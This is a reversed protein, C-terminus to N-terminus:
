RGAPGPLSTEGLVLWCKRLFATCVIGAVILTVLLVVAIRAMLVAFKSPPGIM